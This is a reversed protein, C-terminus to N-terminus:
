ILKHDVEMLNAVRALNGGELPQLQGVPTIMENM